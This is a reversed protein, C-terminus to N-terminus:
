QGTMNLYLTDNIVYFIKQFIESSGAEFLPIFVYKCQCMTTKKNIFTNNNTIFCLVHQFHIGYVKRPNEM